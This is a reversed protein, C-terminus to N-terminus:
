LAWEVDGPRVADPASHLADVTGLPSLCAPMGWGVGYGCGPPVGAKPKSLRHGHARGVHSPRSARAYGRARPLDWCLHCVPIGKTCTVLAKRARTAPSHAQMRHPRLHEWEHKQERRVRTSLSSPLTNPQSMAAVRSGRRGAWIGTRSWAESLSM